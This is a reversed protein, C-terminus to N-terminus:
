RRKRAKKVSGKITLGIPQPNLSTQVYITKQFTGTIKTNYAVRVRGAAGPLVPERTWHSVMCGCSSKVNTILAPSDSKNVFSFDYGADSGKELLGFDHVLTDFVIGPNKEEQGFTCSCPLFFLVAIFIVRNM